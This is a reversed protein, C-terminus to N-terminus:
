TVATTFKIDAGTIFKFEISVDIQRPFEITSSASPEPDEYTQDGAVPNDAEVPLM